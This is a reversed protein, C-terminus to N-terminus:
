MQGAAVSATTARPPELRLLAFTATETLVIAGVAKRACGAERCREARMRESNEEPETRGSCRNTEAVRLRLDGSGNWSACSRADRHLDSADCFM